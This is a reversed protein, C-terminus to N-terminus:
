EADKLLAKVTEEMEAKLKTFREGTAPGTFGAHVKKVLGDRGIFITTPYAGFNELQSLKQPADTTSGAYLIPYPTRHRRAFIKLQEVDRATGGEYEFGLAVVELGADHYRSYLDNLVPAEDHCNPCWSGTTTVIVVKNKFREDTSSVVKGDLDPFSFRFPEAANKMRTYANPDAATPSTESTREAVIKRKPESLGLDVVGELQGQENLQARLLRANIGDFRSLTLKGYSFMGTMAGWDGSPPIVTGLMDAGSQKLTMRWIKQQEGEGVRVTWEGTLDKGEAAAPVSMPAGRWIKLDRVLKERRYQRTFTGILERRFFRGELEGDYYDFRLRLTETEPDFSGSTSTTREDGNVFSGVVSNGDRKLEMKIPLEDGNKNKIMGYWEGNLERPRRRCASAFPSVLALLALATLLLKARSISNMIKGSADFSAGGNYGFHPGTARKL